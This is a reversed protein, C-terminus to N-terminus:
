AVHVSFPLLCLSHVTHWSFSTVSTISAIPWITCSPIHVLHPLSNVDDSKNYSNVDSLVPYM